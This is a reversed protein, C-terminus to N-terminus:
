LSPDIRDRPADGMRVSAHAAGSAIKNLHREILALYAIAGCTLAALLFGIVAGIVVPILAGDSMRFGVIAGVIVIIIAILGNLASLAEALIRNM